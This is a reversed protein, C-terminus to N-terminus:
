STRGEIAAEQPLAPTNGIVQGCRWRQGMLPCRACCARHTVTDGKTVARKTATKKATKRTGGGKKGGGDQKNVTAWAIPAAAAGCRGPDKVSEEIHAAQRKQKDTCAAKDGQPM